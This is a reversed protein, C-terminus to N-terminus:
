GHPLGIQNYDQTFALNNLLTGKALEDAPMTWKGRKIPSLKSQVFM